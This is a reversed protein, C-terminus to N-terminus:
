TMVANAAAALGTSRRPRVTPTTVLPTTNPMAAAIMSASAPHSARASGDSVMALFATGYWRAMMETASNLTRSRVKRTRLTIPPNINALKPAAQPAMASGSAVSGHCRLGAWIPSNPMTPVVM